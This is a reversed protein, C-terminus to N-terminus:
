FEQKLLDEIADRMTPGRGTYTGDRPTDNCAITTVTFQEGDHDTYVILGSKEMAKIYGPIDDNQIM